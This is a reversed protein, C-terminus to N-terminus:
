QSQTKSKTCTSISRWADFLTDSNKEHSYKKLLYIKQRELELTKIASTVVLSTFDGLFTKNSILYRDTDKYMRLESAVLSFMKFREPTKNLVL